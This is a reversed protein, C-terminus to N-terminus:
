YDNALKGIHGNLDRCIVITEDANMNRVIIM